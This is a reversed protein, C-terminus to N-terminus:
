GPKLIELIPSGDWEISAIDFPTRGRSDVAERDAGNKVLFAALKQRDFVATAHLPTCGAVYYEPVCESDSTLPLNVDAGHKVLMQVKNHYADSLEKEDEPTEDECGTYDAIKECTLWLPSPNGSYDASNFNPDVGASLLREATVAGPSQCAVCLFWRVHPSGGPQAKVFAEVSWADQSIEVLLADRVDGGQDLYSKFTGSTMLVGAKKVAKDPDDIYQMRLDLMRERLADFAQRAAMEEDHQVKQQLLEQQHAGEMDARMEMLCVECYPELVLSEFGGGCNSCICFEM